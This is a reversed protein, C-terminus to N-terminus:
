VDHIRIPRIDDGLGDYDGDGRKELSPVVQEVVGLVTRRDSGILSLERFQETVKALLKLRDAAVDQVLCRPVREKRM